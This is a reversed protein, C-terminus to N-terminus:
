FTPLKLANMKRIAAEAATTLKHVEAKAQEIAEEHTGLKQRARALTLNAESEDREAEALAREAEHVERQTDDYAKKAKELAQQRSALSETKARYRETADRFATKVASWRSRAKVFSQEDERALAKVAALKREATAL